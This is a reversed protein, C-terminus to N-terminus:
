LVTRAAGRADRLDVVGGAPAPLAPGAAASWTASLADAWATARTALAAPAAEPALVYMGSTGTLGTETILGYSLAVPLEVMPPAARRGRGASVVVWPRCEALLRGAGALVHAADVGPGIRLVAPEVAGAAAYDDLPVGGAGIVREEVVVPLANSAAAQRAAHAMLGDAAVVRVPRTGYVAALLATEPASGV